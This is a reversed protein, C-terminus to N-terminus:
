SLHCWELRVYATEHFCGEGVSASNACILTFSCCSSLEIMYLLSTSYWRSFTPGGVLPSVELHLKVASASLLSVLSVLLAPRHM